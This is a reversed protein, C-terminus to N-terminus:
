AAEEYDFFGHGAKRGLRGARVMRRLLQAPRYRPDRYEDFLTEMVALVVDIGVLDALALPGIPMNAGLRMAADIAEPEATGEDALTAAENLYPILLRNVLFGPRDACRVPTKGLEAAFRAAREVTADAGGDPRVVEVLPLVAVPNFFHLGVFRGLHGSARGLETVSLSSTNTALLAEAPAHGGIARWARTKAARDEVIAEIVIDADSLADELTGARADLRGLLTDPDREGLRGKSAAKALGSAIRPRAREVAPVDEDYLVVPRDAALCAQAIGSGMTGAGVVAVSGLSRPRDSM